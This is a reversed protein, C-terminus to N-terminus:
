HVSTASANSSMFVDKIIYFVYSHNMNLKKTFICHSNM